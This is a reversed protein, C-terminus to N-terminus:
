MRAAFVYSEKSRDNRVEGLSEVKSRLSRTIAIKFVKEPVQSSARRPPIGKRSANPTASISADVSVMQHTIRVHCGTGGLETAALSRKSSESPGAHAAQRIEQDDKWRNCNPGCGVLLDEFLV